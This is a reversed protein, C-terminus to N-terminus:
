LARYSWHTHEALWPADLITFDHDSPSAWRTSPFWWQGAGHEVRFHQAQLANTPQLGPNPPV